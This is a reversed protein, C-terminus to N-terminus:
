WDLDGFETRIYERVSDLDEISTMDPVREALPFAYVSKPYEQVMMTVAAPLEKEQRVPHLPVSEIFPAIQEYEFRFINMSVFVSGSKTRAEEVDKESPKEVIAKLFGAEDKQTVSFQSVRAAPFGLADRDYDIMANPYSSELLIQLARESYLNDSNCVTFKRGRWQPRARMGQLLADATGLPKVRGEPIRQTAYSIRLGHFSNDNEKTGYYEKMSNDKESVVILVDEYGTKRANYLLYDLFPRRSDGVTIMAKSKGLADAKLRPDIHTRAELSKKMRSSIGGALIILNPDKM